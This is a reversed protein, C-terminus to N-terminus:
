KTGYRAIIMLVSNYWWFGNHNDKLYLNATARTMITDPRPIAQELYFLKIHDPMM